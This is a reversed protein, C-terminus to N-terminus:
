EGAYSTRNPIGLLGQVSSIWIIAGTSKRSIICPVIAKALAAGSLFNVQMLMEDVKIDTEIFSSRSSIGGNNILVDIDLSKINGCLKQVDERNSLDCPMLVIDSSIDREGEFCFKKTEELKELNRGSLVLKAVECNQALQVALSRGLGSSAGTLLVNKGQFITNKDSMTTSSLAFNIAVKTLLLIAIFLPTPILFHTIM